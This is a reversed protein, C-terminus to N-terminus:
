NGKRENTTKDIIKVEGFRGRSWAIATEKSPFVNGHTTTDNKWEVAIPFFPNDYERITITKM